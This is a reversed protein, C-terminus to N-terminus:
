RPRGSLWEVIRELAQSPVLARAEDDDDEIWIRLRPIDQRTVAAGARALSEVVGDDEAGPADRLLLVRRAPRREFTWSVKELGQRLGAGMAFGQADVVGDAGVPTEEVDKARREAQTAALVEAVYARGDLVPEWLAVAEVDTRRRAGLLALLGGLRLGVLAVKDLGSRDLLSEAAQGVDAIWGDLDQEDPAGSSDGCGRFDFRLVHFGSRSLRAALQRLARHALLYERSFPPCIVVALDRDVSTQPADYVGFLEAGRPGFFYPEPM